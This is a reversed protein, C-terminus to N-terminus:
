QWVKKAISDRGPAAVHKVSPHDAGIGRGMSEAHGAVRTCSLDTDGGVFARLECRPMAMKRALATMQDVDGVQVDEITEAREPRKRRARTM